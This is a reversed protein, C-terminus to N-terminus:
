IFDKWFDKRFLSIAKYNYRHVGGDSFSMLELFKPNLMAVKINELNKVDDIIGYAFETLGYEGNRDVIPSSTGNSFIVKPVGFHGHEKTNSYRFNTSGDKYTVYVVPYIFVETQEKKVYEKQIHYKCDYMITVREEDKKALLKEFDKYMGNPIFTLKSIDAIETTGDMCKINTTHNCTVNKICYFDYTTQVGFTKVGDRRDHLELFLFQKSKLLQKVKDFGNGLSRWGDPHVAVLFGNEILNDITKKVFKDWLTHASGGQSSSSNYPPNMVIVDFQIDLESQLYNKNLINM